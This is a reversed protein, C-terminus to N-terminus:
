KESLMKQPTKKRHCLIKPNNLFVWSRQDRDTLIGRGGRPFIEFPIKISNISFSNTLNVYGLGDVVSQLLLHYPRSLGM